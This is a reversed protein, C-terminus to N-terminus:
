SEKDFELLEGVRRSEDVSLPPTEATLKQRRRLQILLGLGGSALLVFPGVWLLATTMKLPPRYLVFDGYRAVLYDVIEKDSMGKTAMERIEQMLDQALEAHSDALTQNQCVLCRLETALRQVQAEVAANDQMPRADQAQVSLVQMLLCTFIVRFILNMKM